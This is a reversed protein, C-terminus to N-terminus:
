KKIIKLIEEIKNNIEDKNESNVKHVFENFLLESRFEFMLVELKIKFSDSIKDSEDAFFQMLKKLMKSSTSTQILLQNNVSQEATQKSIM